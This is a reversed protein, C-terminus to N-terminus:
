RNRYKLYEDTVNHVCQVEFNEPHDEYDGECYKEEALEYADDLNDAEVEIDVWSKLVYQIIYKKKAM